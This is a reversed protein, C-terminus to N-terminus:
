DPNETLVYGLGIRTHILRPEFENDMKKRLSNIYVDIVNTGTDFNIGWVNESIELRDMVKDKNLAMFQLLKYEKAKLHIPKGSRFVKKEDMRIELDAILISKREAPADSSRKLLARIRAVLERVEFPKLLYDDAGAEFGMLKEEIGGLATLMLVPVGPNNERIIRCLKFGNIHPLNLDLIILRYPNALSKAKGILGDFAVDSSFGNEELGKQIFSAVKPEDEVILIKGSEMSTLDTSRM